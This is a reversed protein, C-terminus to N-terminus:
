WVWHRWLQLRDATGNNFLDLCLRDYRRTACHRLQDLADQDEVEPNTLELWARAERHPLDPRPPTERHGRSRRYVHDVATAWAREVCDDVEWWHDAPLPPLMAGVAQWRSPNLTHARLLGLTLRQRAHRRTYPDGHVERFAMWLDRLNPTQDDPLLSAVRLAEVLAPAALDPRHLNLAGYIARILFTNATAHQVRAAHWRGIATMLPIHDTTDENPEQRVLDQAADCIAHDTDGREVATHVAHAYLALRTGLPVDPHQEAWCLDLSELDHEHLLRGAIRGATAARGRSLTDKDPLIGLLVESTNKIGTLSASARGQHLVMRLIHEAMERAETPRRQWRAELHHRADPFAQAIADAVNSVQVLSWGDPLHEETLPTQLDLQQIQQGRAVLLRMPTRAASQLVHIKLALSDPKVPAVSGDRGILGTAAVNTPVPQDLLDSAWALLFALGYSTGGVRPVEGVLPHIVCPRSLDTADDDGLIPCHQRALRRALDFTRDVDGRMMTARDGAQGRTSTHLLVGHPSKRSPRRVGLLVMEGPVPDVEESTWPCNMLRDRTAADHDPHPM